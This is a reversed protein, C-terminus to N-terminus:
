AALKSWIIAEALGGRVPQIAAAATGKLILRYIDVADAAHAARDPSMQTQAALAAISLGAIQRQWRALHRATLKSCCQQLQTASGGSSSVVARAPTHAQLWALCRAKEAASGGGARATGLAFTAAAALKSNVLVACDTSGGGVDANVVATAAFHSAAYGGIISAEERGSLVHLPAGCQARVAEAIEARNAANRVAATAVMRYRCPKMSAIIHQMGTLTAILRRCTAASIRRQSGYANSGLGLPVRTFVETLLKGEVRAAIQLRVAISGIDIVAYRRPM